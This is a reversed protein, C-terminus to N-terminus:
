QFNIFPPNRQQKPLSSVYGRNYTVYEGCGSQNHRFRSYLFRSVYMSTSIRASFLLVKISPSPEPASGLLALDVAVPASALYWVWGSYAYQQRRRKLSWADAYGSQQLAGTHQMLHSHMVGFHLCCSEVNLCSAIYLATNPVICLPQEKRVVEGLKSKNAM